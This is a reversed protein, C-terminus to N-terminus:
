ARVKLNEAVLEAVDKVELEGELGEVKVSDDLMIMCFSCGTAVTGAGTAKAQRSRALNMRDDDKMEYWMNGGGAGCCFSKERNQGMEVLHASSDVTQLLLDRPAAFEGGYRGLYCPDHFTVKRDSAAAVELRGAGILESILQSHHKVKYEAGFDRYETGLTLQCHPCTTVIEDFEYKDITEINQMALTEFLYEDGLRRASDGTCCEEEGLVAFDVEAAQLLQVMARAIQQNRSDYAGACGVWYLVEARKKDAMVPVELGSEQAWKMRDSQPLAWPNGRNTMGELAKTAQDPPQGESLVLYRRMDTFTPVHDIMVPCVEACAGCSTCSWLEEVRIREGVLSPIERLKKLEREYLDHRIDTILKMPSLPRGTAYAPCVSTCRACETCSVSDLLQKWTFDSAQNAGLSIADLDADPDEMMESVHMPRVLGRSGRDSVAVNAIVALSHFMKTLPLVAIFLLSTIAHFWWILRESSAWAAESGLAALRNGVFSYAATDPTEISLRAAEALFGGIVLLVLFLLIGTDGLFNDRGRLAQQPLPKPRDVYRRYLAMLLGILLLLGGLDNLWAFWPTDKQPLYALLWGRAVFFDVTTAFFLEIFGWGLCFHMVSAFTFRRSFVKRQGVGFVLANSVRSFLDSSRYKEERGVRVTFLRRMSYAFILLAVFAVAYFLTPIHSTESM